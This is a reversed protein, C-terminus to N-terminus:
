LLFNAPTTSRSSLPEPAPENLNLPTSSPRELLTSLFDIINKCIKDQKLHCCKFSQNLSLKQRLQKTLELFLFTVGIGYFDLYLQQLHLIKYTLQQQYFIEILENKFLEFFKLVTKLTLM